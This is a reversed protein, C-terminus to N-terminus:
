ASDTMQLAALRRPQGIGVSAPGRAKTKSSAAPAPKSLALERVASETLVMDGDLEQSAIRFKQLHIADRMQATNLILDHPASHSVVPRTHQTVEREQMVPRTNATKCQHAACNHQTNVTCLILQPSTLLLSTKSLSTCSVELNVLAWRGSLDVLPMGYTDSTRALTALQLLVLDPMGSLHAVSNNSHLIEDVRATYTAGLSGPDQVIVFQGQM